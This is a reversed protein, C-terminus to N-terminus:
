SQCHKTPKGWPQLSDETPKARLVRFFLFFSFGGEVGGMLKQHTFHTKRPTALLDQEQHTEKTFAIVLLLIEEKKDFTGFKIKNLATPKIHKKDNANTGM